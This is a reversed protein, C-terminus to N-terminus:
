LVISRDFVTYGGVRVFGDALQRTFLRCGAGQTIDLDRGLRTTLAVAASGTAQDEVIGMAPAFMRARVTGAKEDIWAYLYQDGTSFDAPDLADVDTASALEIWEFHPAWEGRGTIWTVDGDYSVGVDGVREALTTVVTGQQRLWWATGVSPHGAFPLENAPTFIRIKAVGGTVTDIFVTESFGLEAAIAQQRGSTSTSGWVIGLENGYEGSEATFVRVVAVDVQGSV